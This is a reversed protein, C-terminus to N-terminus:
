GIMRKKVVIYTKPCLQDHKGKHIVPCDVDVYRHIKLDTEYEHNCAMTDFGGVNGSYHM